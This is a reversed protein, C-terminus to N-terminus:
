YGYGRTNIIEEIKTIIGHAETYIGYLMSIDVDKYKVKEKVYHNSQYYKSIKKLLKEIEKDIPYPAGNQLLELKTKIGYLANKIECKRDLKDYVELYASCSNKLASSYNEIRLNFVLTKRQKDVARKITGAM